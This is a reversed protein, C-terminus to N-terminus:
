ELAAFFRNIVWFLASRQASGDATGLWWCTGHGFGVACRLKNNSWQLLSNGGIVSVMRRVFLARLSINQCFDQQQYFHNLPFAKFFETRPRYRCLVPLAAM